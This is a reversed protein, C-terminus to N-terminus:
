APENVLSATISSNSDITEPYSLRVTKSSQTGNQFMVTIKIKTGDLMRRQVKTTFKLDDDGLFENYTHMTLKLYLVGDSDPALEQLAGVPQYARPDNMDGPAPTLNNDCPPMKRFKRYYANQLVNMKVLNQFEGRNTTYTVKEIDNGVCKMRFGFYGEWDVNKGDSTTGGCMGDASGDTNIVRFGGGSKLEAQSYGNKTAADVVVAFGTKPAAVSGTGERVSNRVPQLPWFLAGGALVTAALVFSVAYKLVPVKRRPVPSYLSMVKEKLRGDPEIRNVAQIFHMENRM